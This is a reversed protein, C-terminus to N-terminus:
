VTFRTHQTSMGRVDMTLIDHTVNHTREVCVLIWSTQADPTNGTEHTAVIRTYSLLDYSLVDRCHLISDLRDVHRPRLCFSIQM